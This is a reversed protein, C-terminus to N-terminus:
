SSRVFIILSPIATVAEEGDLVDSNYELGGPLM